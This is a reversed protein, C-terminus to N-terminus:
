SLFDTLDIWGQKQLIPVPFTDSDSFNAQLSPDLGYFHLM